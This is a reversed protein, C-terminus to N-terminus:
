KIELINQATQFQWDFDIDFAEFEKMLYLKPQPPSKDSMWCENELFSVKSAYLCHAAEYVPEVVKTNMIKNDKWDTIPAGDKNWYYTKKEFVAFMGPESIESYKKVFDEITELRLLPNCASVLVVYEEKLHKYWEYILRIDNDENASEYSRNYINFNYKAAADKLEQEHISLYV